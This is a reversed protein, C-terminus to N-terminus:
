FSVRVCLVCLYVSAATSFFQSKPYTIHPCHFCIVSARKKHKSDAIETLACFGLRVEVAGLTVPFM